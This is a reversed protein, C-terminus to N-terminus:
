PVELASLIAFAEDARDEPVLLHDHHYGALVNCSIEAASLAASFAATIGVAELESGLGLTIWSWRTEIELGLRQAEEVELVVTSGEDEVVLAQVHASPLAATTTVFVYTGPIRTPELRTTV